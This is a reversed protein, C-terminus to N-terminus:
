QSCRPPFGEARIGEEAFVVSIIGGALGVGKVVGKLSTRKIWFHSSKPPLQAIARNLGVIIFDM